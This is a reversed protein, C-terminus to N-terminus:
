KQRIKVTATTVQKYPSYKTLELDQRYITDYAKEVLICAEIDGNSRLKRSLEHLQTILEQTM